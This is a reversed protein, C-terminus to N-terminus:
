QFRSFYDRYTFISLKVDEFKIGLGNDITSYESPRIFGTATITDTVVLEVVRKTVKDTFDKQIELDVKIEFRDGLLPTYTTKSRLVTAKKPLDGRKLEDYWYRLFINYKQESAFYEKGLLKFDENINELAKPETITKVVEPNFGLTLASESTTMKKIEEKIINEFLNNDTSILERAIVRVKGDATVLLVNQMSKDIKATYDERLDSMKFFITFFLIVIVINSVGTFWWNQYFFTKMKEFSNINKLAM